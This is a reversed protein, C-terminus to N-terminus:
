FYGNGRLLLTDLGRQARKQRNNWARVTVCVRSGGIRTDTDPPEFRCEVHDLSAAVDDKQATGTVVVTEVARSQSPSAASGPTQDNQVTATVSVSPIANAIPAAIAPQIATLPQAPGAMALNPVLTVATAVVFAPFIRM